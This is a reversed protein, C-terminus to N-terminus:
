SLSLWLARITVLAVMCLSTGAPQCVVSSGLAEAECLVPLLQQQGHPSSIEQDALLASIM